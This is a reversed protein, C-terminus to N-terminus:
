CALGAIMVAVIMFGALISTKLFAEGPENMWDFFQTM